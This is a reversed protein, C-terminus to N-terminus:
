VAIRDSLGSTMWVTRFPAARAATQAEPPAPPLQEDAATPSAPAAALVFIPTSPTKPAMLSLRRGPDPLRIKWRCRGLGLEARALTIKRGVSPRRGDDQIPWM